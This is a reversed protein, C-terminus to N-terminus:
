SRNGKKTKAVGVNLRRHSQPKTFKTAVDPYCKRLSDGDLRNQTIQPYSVDYGPVDGFEAEGLAAILAAKCKDVAVEEIALRGKAELFDQVLKVPIQAVSGPRRNVRSILDLSPLSEPPPIDKLVNNNWFDCVREEIADALRQNYELEYLSFSFGFRGLLRGVHTVRADSCLMQAHCQILVRDPVEATREEGWGEIIGTSKLECNPSGRAAKEVQRDLNAFMVGNVAKYTATPKVLRVNLRKEVLRATTVEIENGIEAAESNFEDTVKGTKKLWLDYASVYPDVGMVAPVESAGIGGERNQRQKETLM